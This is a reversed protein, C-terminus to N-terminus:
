KLLLGNHPKNVVPWLETNVVHSSLIVDRSLRESIHNYKDPHKKTSRFKIRLNGTINIVLILM